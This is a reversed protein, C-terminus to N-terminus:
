WVNTRKGKNFSLKQKLIKRTDVEKIDSHGMCAGLAVLEYRGQWLISLEPADVLGDHPRTGKIVAGFDWQSEWWQADADPAGDLSSQVYLIQFVAWLPGCVIKMFENDRSGMLKDSVVFKL